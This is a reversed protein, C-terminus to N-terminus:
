RSRASARLATPNRSYAIDYSCEVAGEVGKAPAIEVGEKREHIM